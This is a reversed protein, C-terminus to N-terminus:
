AAAAKEARTGKRFNMVSSTFRVLHDKSMQGDMKQYKKGTLRIGEVVAQFSHLDLWTNFQVVSPVHKGITVAWLKQLTTLEKERQETEHMVTEVTV